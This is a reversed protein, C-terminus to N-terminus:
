FAPAWASLPLPEGHGAIARLLRQVDKDVSFSLFTRLTGLTGWAAAQLLLSADCTHGRGEGTGWSPGRSPRRDGEWGRLRCIGAAGAAGVKTALGLYSLIEQTLSYGTKEGTVSM